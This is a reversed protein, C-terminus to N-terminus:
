DTIIAVMYMDDHGSVPSPRRIGFEKTVQPLQDETATIILGTDGTTKEKSIEWKLGLKEAKSQAERRTMKDIGTLGRKVLSFVPGLGLLGKEELYKTEVADRFSKM